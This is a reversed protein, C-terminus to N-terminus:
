ARLFSFSSTIVEDGLGIGLALLAVLLAMTGNSLTICHRVGVWKALRQELEEVEPGMIYQGHDLVTQINKDVTSKILRYQQNLDIFKIM